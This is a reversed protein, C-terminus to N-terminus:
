LDPGLEEALARVRADVTDVTGVGLDVRRRGAVVLDGEHVHDVTVQPDHVEGGDGEALVIVQGNPHEVEHDRAVDAPGEAALRDTRQDTSPGRYAPGNISSSRAPSTLSSMLSFIPFAM